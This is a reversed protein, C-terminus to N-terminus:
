EYNDVGILDGRFTTGRINKIDRFVVGKGSKKTGKGNKEPESVSMGQIKTGKQRINFRSMKSNKIMKSEFYGGIM